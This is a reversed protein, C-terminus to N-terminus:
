LASLSVILANRRCGTPSPRSFKPSVVLAAGNSSTSRVVVPVYSSPTHLLCTYRSENISQSPPLLAKHTSDNRQPANCTLMTRTHTVTSLPSRFRSPTPPLLLHYTPPLQSRKNPITTRTTTTHTPQSLHPLPLSLPCASIWKSLLSKNSRNMLSPTTPSAFVNISPLGTPM